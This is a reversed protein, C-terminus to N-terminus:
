WRRIARQRFPEALRALAAALTARAWRLTRL